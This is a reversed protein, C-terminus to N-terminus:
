ESDDVDLVTQLLRSAIKTFNGLTNFFDVQIQDSDADDPSSDEFIAVLYDQWKSVISSLFAAKSITQPLVSVTTRVVELFWRSSLFIYVTICQARSGELKSQVSWM